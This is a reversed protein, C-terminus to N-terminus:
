QVAWDAPVFRLTIVGNADAPVGTLRRIPTLGCQGSEAYKECPGLFASAQEAALELVISDDGEKYVRLGADGVLRVLGEVFTDVAGGLKYFRSVPIREVLRVARCELGAQAVSTFIYHEITTGTHNGFSVWGSVDDVLPTLPLSAYASFQDRRFTGALLGCTGCSFSVSWLQPTIRVMSCYVDNYEAPLILGADVLIDDPLTM